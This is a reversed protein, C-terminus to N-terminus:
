SITVDSAPMVFYIHYEPARAVGSTLGCPITNGYSDVVSVWDATSFGAGSSLVFEGAQASERQFPYQDGTNNTIKYVQGRGSKKIVPNGIM